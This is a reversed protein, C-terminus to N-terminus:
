KTLIMKKIQVFNGAELKYIYIGSALRGANFSVNYMGKEKFENVLTMVEQGMM